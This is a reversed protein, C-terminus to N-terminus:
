TEIYSPWKEVLLKTRNSTERFQVKKNKLQATFKWFHFHFRSQNNENNHSQCGNWKCVMASITRFIFHAAWTKTEITFDHRFNGIWAETSVHVATSDFWQWQRCSIGRACRRLTDCVQLIPDVVLNLCVTLTWSRSLAKWFYLLPKCGFINQFSWISKIKDTFYFSSSNLSSRFWLFSFYFLYIPTKRSSQNGNNQESDLSSM